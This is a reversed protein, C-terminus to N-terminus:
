AVEVVVVIGAVEGAAALHALLDVGAHRRAVAREPMALGARLRRAAVAAAAVVRRDVGQAPRRERLGAVVRAERLRRGHEVM